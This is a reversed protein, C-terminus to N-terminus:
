HTMWVLAISKHTRPFKKLTNVQFFFLVPPNSVYVTCLSDRSKRGILKKEQVFKVNSLADASLEIAQNFGNEGGYSVDVTKLIKAQLRQEPFFSPCSVDFM